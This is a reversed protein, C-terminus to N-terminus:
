YSLSSGNIPNLNYTYSDIPIIIVYLYKQFRKMHLLIRSIVTERYEM